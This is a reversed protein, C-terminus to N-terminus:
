EHSRKRGVVIPRIYRTPWFGKRAKDWPADVHTVPFGGRRLAGQMFGPSTRRGLMPHDQTNCQVLFVDAISAVHRMVREIDTEELYYLSNLALVIDFRGLDQGPLDRVNVNRFSVNYSTRCRWELAAKVFAAQEQWLPWTNEHDIGVVEAAGNRALHVAILGCNCGIDLIRKGQFDPLNRRIIFEFKSIGVHPSHLPADPWSTSKAVIGDGFNVDVFWKYKPIRERIYDDSMVNALGADITSM